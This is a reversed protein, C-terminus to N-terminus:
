AEKVWTGVLKTATWGTADGYELDVMDGRNATAKTNRLAKNDVATLDTPQIGDNANPAIAVLITGYAGANVIRFGMKAVAPLTIIFADTDVFFVKGSDLADLTKNASLTEAVLGEHPDTLVGADFEVIGYGSATFRRMFGIFVGSTKIFSFANDDQAYVPQNIDTIVAGTIALLISGKKITRVNIAAAAGASNDAKKEAFGVFKDVSTLPRAHGSAIVLGVAAGQYIIDSAIVPFENREGLEYTRASDVALTTM